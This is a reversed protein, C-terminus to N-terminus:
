NYFTKRVFLHSEGRNNETIKVNVLDQQLEIRVEEAHVFSRLMPMDPFSIKWQYTLVLNKESQNGIKISKKEKLLFRSIDDQYKYDFRM